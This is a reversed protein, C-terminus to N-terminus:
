FPSVALTGSHEGSATTRGYAQRSKGADIQL